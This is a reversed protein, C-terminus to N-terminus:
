LRTSKCDDIVRVSSLSPKILLSELRDDWYFSFRILENVENRLYMSTEDYGLFTYGLGNFLLRAFSAGLTLDLYSLFRGMKKEFEDTSDKVSTMEPYKDEDGLYKENGLNVLNFMLSHGVYSSRKYPGEMDEIVKNVIKEIIPITWLVSVEGFTEYILVNNNNNEKSLSSPNHRNLIQKCLLSNVLKAEEPFWVERKRKCDRRLMQATIGALFVVREHFSTPTKQLITLDSMDIEKAQFYEKMTVYM